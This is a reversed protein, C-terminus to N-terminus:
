TLKQQWINKIIEAWARHAPIGPHSGDTDYWNNDRMIDTINTANYISELDLLRFLDHEKLSDFYPHYFTFLYPINMQKLTNQLSIMKILFGQEFELTAQYRYVSEFMRTKKLAQEGNIYGCGFVWNKEVYDQDNKPWVIKEPWDNQLHQYASTYKSGSFQDIDSVRMDQRQPATWMITVADYSRRALEAVTTEHIYTNGAGAQALNSIEYGLHYPWSGPGRSFSCGNVLMSKNM